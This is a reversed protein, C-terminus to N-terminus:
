SPTKIKKKMILDWIMGHFWVGIDIPHMKTINNRQETTYSLISEYVSYFYYPSENTICNYLIAISQHRSLHLIKQLEIIAHIYPSIGVSRDLHCPLEIVGPIESNIPLKFLDSSVTKMYEEVGAEWEKYEMVIPKIQAERKISDHLSQRSYGIKTLRLPGERTMYICSLVDVPAMSPRSDNLSDEHVELYQNPGHSATRWASYLGSEHLTGAFRDNIGDERHYKELNYFTSVEDLISSLQTQVSLFVPQMTRDLLRPTTSGYDDSNRKLNKSSAFGFDMKFNNRHLDLQSNSMEVILSDDNISKIIKKIPPILDLDNIIILFDDHFNEHAHIRHINPPNTQHHSSIFQNLAEDFKTTETRLISYHPHHTLSKAQYYNHNM